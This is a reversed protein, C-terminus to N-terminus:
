VVTEYRDKLYNFESHNIVGDRQLRGVVLGQAIGLREAFAKIRKESYDRNNVFYDIEDVPILIDRAWKDAQQEDSKTLGVSGGVHGLVIHGLEHFLWSWFEDADKCNSNLGLVVKNGDMFSVGHLTTGSLGPLLVLAIGCKSLVSNLMPGFESTDKTTMNRIANISDVLAKISFSDTLISRSKIRAEQAWTMMAVDSKREITLSRCAIKTLSSNNLSNLSVVEFYRRLHIIREKYDKTKPIWEYTAMEGYPFKKAIEKDAEISSEAEVRALKDRYISELNNWFSANIGLVFELRLAVDPTLQVDGNILRSIHKESMDMRCAFEKQSMGRDVLQEKITVGPPTAIFTRSRTM